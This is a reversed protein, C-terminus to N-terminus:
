LWHVKLAKRMRSFATYLWRRGEETGMKVSPEVIVLGSDWEGGQCKHATLTYGLNVHLHEPIEKGRFGQDRYYKKSGKKIAEPSVGQTRGFIEELCLSSKEDSMTPDLRVQQFVMYLSKHAYSDVVPVPSSASELAKTRFVEGNFMNLNYNNKVVLLPEDVLLRDGPMKLLTRISNNTSHRTKNQHCIVVGKNKYSELLADGLGQEGVCDIEVLASSYDSKTRIQTCVRIIPSELAQRLVETLNVRLDAFFDAGFVSFARKTPDPEVPPLQFGDGILVVSLQLARCFQYLHEWVQKQVMSAEDVIIVGNSPLRLDEINKQTFRCEGTQEDVSPSYQWRHITLADCGAAEKVRVAAKGTPTLVFLGSVEEALVKLLTTKGTGAYGSIVLVGGGNPFRKPLSRIADLAEAQGKTPTFTSM